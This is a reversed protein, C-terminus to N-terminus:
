TMGSTLEVSGESSSRWRRWSQNNEVLNQPVSLKVGVTFDNIKTITIPKPVGFDHQMAMRYFRADNM